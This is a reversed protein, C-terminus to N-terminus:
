KNGYKEELFNLAKETLLLNEAWVVDYACLNQALSVKTNPLNSVSKRVNLDNEEQVLLTKGRSKTGVLIKKAEKASPKKMVPDELVAVRGQSAKISLASKLALSRMKAPFSLSWNKPLPGHAVGGHRWIPSRISGQRARGTHKQQWPKRGGGSVESRTKVKSNGQRQNTRYIYIYQNLLPINPVIEFLDSSVTKKGQLEGKKSFFPFEM